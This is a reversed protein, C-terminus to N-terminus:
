IKNINSDIFLINPKKINIIEINNISNEIFLMQKDLLQPNNISTERINKMNESNISLENQKKTNLIEINNYTEISFIHTKKYDVFM